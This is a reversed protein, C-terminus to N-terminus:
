LWNRGRWNLAKTPAPKPEPEPPPPPPPEALGMLELDEQLALADIGLGELIQPRYKRAIPKGQWIAETLLAAIGKNALLSKISPHHKGPYAFSRARNLSIRQGSTILDVFKRQRAETAAPSRDVLSARSMVVKKATKNLGLEDIADQLDQGTLKRKRGFRRAQATRKQQEHFEIIKLAAIIASTM